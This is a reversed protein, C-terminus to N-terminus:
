RLAISLVRGTLTIVYAHDGVIEVSTPRDLGTVARVLRGHDLRYLGGTGPSAPLGANEPVNAHEWRGQSLAWLRGQDDADVDVLLPAGAALVTPRGRGRWTIVRGTEPLHPVPGAEAMLVQDGIVDLGTPAVNDFAQVQRIRGRTTVQLVRNLHGDTVLFGGRYPQLAYQLGSAVAYDTAPPHAVSWAGLDAIPSASGDDAIRYIGDVVDPQGLAPGVLTVLVYPTRGRFAVDIAGGLGVAGLQKPLQDSVTRTAGTRRDIRLLRGGPGDTVYLAGDPGITSGSGCQGACEPAAFTALDRARSPGVAAAPGISLAGVPIGILAILLAVLITTRRHLLQTRM